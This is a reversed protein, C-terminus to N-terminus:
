FFLHSSECGASQSLRHLAYFINIYLLLAVSRRGWKDDGGETTTEEEMVTCLCEAVKNVEEATGFENGTRM